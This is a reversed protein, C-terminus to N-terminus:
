ENLLHTIDHRIRHYGGEGIHRERIRGQKDILYLTPWYRAGYAKWMKMDNDVAVPLTLNNHILYKKISAIKKESKFEPSHIGILVFGEPGFEELIEQLHPLANRCNHCGHTWFEIAVVKGKLEEMTYPNTNIWETVGSFEPAQPFKQM